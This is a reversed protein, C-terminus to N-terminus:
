GLLCWDEGKKEISKQFDNRANHIDNAIGETIDLLRNVEKHEYEIM